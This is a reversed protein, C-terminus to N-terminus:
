SGYATPIGLSAAATHAKERNRSAIAVIESCAGRQMGPIVKKIAIGAVGLVGWRVKQVNIM